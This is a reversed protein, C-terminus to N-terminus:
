RRRRTPSQRARLARGAGRAQEHWSSEAKETTITKSDAIGEVDVGAPLYCACAVVVGRPVRPGGRGRWHNPSTLVSSPPPRPTPRAARCRSRRSRPRAFADGERRDVPAGGGASTAAADGGLARPTRGHEDSPPTKAALAPTAACRRAAAAGRPGEPPQSARAGDTPTASRNPKFVRPRPM